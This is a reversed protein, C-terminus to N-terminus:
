VLPITFIVAFRLSKFDLFTSKVCILSHNKPIDKKYGDHKMHLHKTKGKARRGATWLWVGDTGRTWLHGTHQYDPVRLRASTVSCFCMKSFCLVSKRWKTWMKCILGHLSTLKLQCIGSSAPIYKWVLSPGGCGQGSCLLSLVHVNQKVRKVPKLPSWLLIISKLWVLIM